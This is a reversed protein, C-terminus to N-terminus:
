KKFRNYVETIKEADKQSIPKGGYWYKDKSWINHQWGVGAKNYEAATYKEPGVYGGAVTDLNQEDVEHFGKNKDNAM